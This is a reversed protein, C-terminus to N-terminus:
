TRLGDFLYAFVTGGVSVPPAEVENAEQRAFKVAKLLTQIREQLIEKQPRPIAGSYSVQAWTGVSQDVYILEVQAPHKDTAPAKTIVQPVKATRTTTKTESKYLLSNVDQTWSASPDLEPLKDIESKLDSLQKELFLLFPAPADKLIVRGDVVLDAKANRNAMDKTAVVDWYETQAKAVVKLIDSVNNQVLSRESPLREGDDLKPTYDRSLGSFLQPKQILKYVETLVSYTRSKIGKEVALIQHLKAMRIDKASETGLEAM